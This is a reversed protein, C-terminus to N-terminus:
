TKARNWSPGGVVEFRPCFPCFHCFDGLRWGRRERVESSSQSRVFRRGAGQEGRGASTCEYKGAPPFDMFPRGDVM